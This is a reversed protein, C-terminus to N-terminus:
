ESLLGSHEKSDEPGYIRYLVTALEARTVPDNPRGDRILGQAKAWAMAEDYWALPERQSLSSDGCAVSPDPDSGGSAGYEETMALPAAGHCDADGAMWLGAATISTTKNMDVPFGVKAAMAVAEAGGSWQYQYVSTYQSLRGLSWAVCQWFKRCAGRRGLWDALGAHGYLGAEYPACAAGAARIYQEIVPYEREVACYDCAFYIVTGAPVGFSEALAKARAGDSKGREAGGKVDGAGIEWCLLIALGADHLGKAEDAKLDKGMGTPVLYRGVFSVGEARLKKAAAPSIAAATDIGLYTM